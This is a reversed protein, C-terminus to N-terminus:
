KKLKFIALITKFLYKHKFGKFKSVIILKSTKIILFISNFYKITKTTKIVIQKQNIVKLVRNYFIKTKSNSIINGTSFKIKM